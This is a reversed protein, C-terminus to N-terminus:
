RITRTKNAGTSRLYSRRFWDSNKSDKQGHCLNPQYQTSTASRRKTQSTQLFAYQVSMSRLDCLALCSPLYIQKHRTELEAGQGGSLKDSLSKYPMQGGDTWWRSIQYCNPKHVIGLVFRLPNKGSKFFPSMDINAQM